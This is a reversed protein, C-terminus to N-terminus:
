QTITYRADALNTDGFDDSRPFEYVISAGDPALTMKRGRYTWSGGREKVGDLIRNSMAHFEGLWYDSDIRESSDMECIPTADFRGLEEWAQDRRRIAFRMSTESITHRVRKTIMTLDGEQM